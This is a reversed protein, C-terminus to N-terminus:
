KVGGPQGFGRRLQGILRSAAFPLEGGHEGSAVRPTIDWSHGERM